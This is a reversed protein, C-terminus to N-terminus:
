LRLSITGWGLTEDGEQNGGPERKDERGDALVLRLVGGDVLVKIEGRM